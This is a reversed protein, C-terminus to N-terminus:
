FSEWLTGGGEPWERKNIWDQYKRSKRWNYNIADTEKKGAINRKVMKDWAKECYPKDKAELIANREINQFTKRQGSNWDFCHGAIWRTAVCEVSCFVRGANLLEKPIVPIIPEDWLEGARGLADIYDIYDEFDNILDKKRCEKYEVGRVMAAAFNWPCEQSKNKGELPDVESVVPAEVFHVEACGFSLLIILFLKKM